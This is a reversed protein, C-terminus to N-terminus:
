LATSYVAVTVVKDATNLNIRKSQMVTSRKSVTQAGAANSTLYKGALGNPSLTETTASGGVM